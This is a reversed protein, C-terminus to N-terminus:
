YDTALMWFFEPVHYLTCPVPHLVPCFDFLERYRIGQVRFRAGKKMGCDGIKSGVDWM